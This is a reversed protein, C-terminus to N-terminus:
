LLSASHITAAHLCCLSSAPIESTENQHWTFVNCGCNSIAAKLNGAAVTSQQKTPEQTQTHCPSKSTM